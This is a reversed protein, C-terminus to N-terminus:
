PHPVPLLHHTCKSCRYMDQKNRLLTSLLGQTSLSLCDGGLMWRKGTFWTTEELCRDRGLLGAGKRSFQTATPSSQTSAFFLPKGAAPMALESCAVPLKIVMGRCGSLSLM